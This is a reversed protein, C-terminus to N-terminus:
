LALFEKATGGLLQRRDADSFSKVTEVLAGPEAEGLPFPYDSGLAVRDVGMLEVLYRLAAADHVLSDVYFRRVMERPPTAADTACLDPRVKFGHDIRGLTHPFGGGGHAFGIRLDPLRELVGGFIVSCIALATEAPMGVLWPM